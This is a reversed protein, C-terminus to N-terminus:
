KQRKDDKHHKDRINGSNNATKYGPIWYSKRLEILLQPVDISVPNGYYECRRKLEILIKKVDWRGYLSTTIKRIKGKKTKICIWPSGWLPDISISEIDIYRVYVPYQVRNKQPLFREGKNRIGESELRILGSYFRPMLILWSFIGMAIIFYYSGAYKGNLFIMPWFIPSFLIITIFLQFVICLIGTKLYIKTKM